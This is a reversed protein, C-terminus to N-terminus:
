AKATHRQAGSAASVSTVEGDGHRTVPWDDGHRQLREEWKIRNDWRM